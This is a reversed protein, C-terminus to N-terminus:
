SDDTGSVFGHHRLFETTIGSGGAEARGAGLLRELYRALIDVELNVQRGPAFEGLTTVRLTHPVVNVDFASGAVANVTLSVGDVCISVKEAIFRGLGPPAALRFRVSSGVETREVVRAVGDVHGSVIHGGIRTTPQLAKELNVHSGVRLGGLTTRTLTEASVDCSFAQGGVDIVTLCVGSVCISDGVKIDSYDLHAATVRLRMGAGSAALAAVAGVTEVIGTFM